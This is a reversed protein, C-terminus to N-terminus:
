LNLRYEHLPIYKHGAVTPESRYLTAFEPVWGINELPHELPELIRGSRTRAMTVHPQWPKRDTQPACISAMEILQNVCQHWMIEQEPRCKAVYMTPKKAPFTQISTMHFSGEPPTELAQSILQVLRILQDYAVDGFFALTIHWQGPDSLKLSPRENEPITWSEKIAARCDAPLPIGLFCRM